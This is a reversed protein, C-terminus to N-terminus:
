KRMGTSHHRRPGPTGSEAKVTRMRQKVTKEIYADEKEKDKLKGEVTKLFEAPEIPKLLYADVGQKISEIANELNPYGTLIIKKMNRSNQRMRRLVEIGEIDPLRVDVVALDYTGTRSMELARKGTNATDVTYGRPELLDKFTHVLDVDDDVVLISHTGAKKV